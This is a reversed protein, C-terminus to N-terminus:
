SIKEIACGQGHVPEWFTHTADPTPGAQWDTTQDQATAIFDVSMLQTVGDQDVFTNSVRYTAGVQLGTCHARWSLLLIAETTPCEVGEGCGNPDPPHYEAACIPDDEVTDMVCIRDPDGPECHYTTGSRKCEFTCAAGVLTCGSAIWGPQDTASPNPIDVYPTFEEAATATFEWTVFQYEPPFTLRKQFFLTATYNRGPTLGTMHLRAQATVVRLTPPEECPCPIFNNLTLCATGLIPYTIPECDFAEDKPCGSSTVSLCQIECGPTVPNCCGCPGPTRGTITVDPM